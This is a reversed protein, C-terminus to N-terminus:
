TDKQSREDVITIGLGSLAQHVDPWWLQKLHFCLPLHQIEISGPKYLVHRYGLALLLRLEQWAPWSWLRLEITDHEKAVRSVRVRVPRNAIQDIGYMLLRAHEPRVDTLRDFWVENRSCEMPALWYHRPRAITRCLQLENTQKGGNRWAASRIWRTTHIDGRAPDYIEFPPGSGSPALRTRADRILLDTWVSLSEAPRGLWSALPQRPFTNPIWSVQESPVVRGLGAWQVPVGLALTLCNTPLGSVVIAAGSELTIVRTPVPLYYGKGCGAVEKLFILLEIARRYCEGLDAQEDDQDPEFDVWAPSNDDAFWDELMGLQRFIAVRLRHIQVKGPGLHCLHHRVYDTVVRDRTATEGGAADASGTWDALEQM